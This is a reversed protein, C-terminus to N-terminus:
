AGLAFTLSQFVEDRSVKRSVGTRAEIAITNALGEVCDYHFPCNGQFTDTPMSILAFLFLAEMWCVFRRCLVHGGEPHLLGHVPANNVVLGM